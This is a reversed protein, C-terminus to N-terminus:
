RLALRNYVEGIIRGLAYGMVFAYVFGVLSGLVSVRYGPFFAGLLQLHQGPTPGGKVVLFLTALFLGGGLVLGFAIGWARANLSLLTSQLKVDQPSTM